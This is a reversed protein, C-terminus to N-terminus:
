RGANVMPLASKTLERYVKVIGHTHADLSFDKVRLLGNTTLRDRLPADSLLLVIKQALARPADVPVLLGTEGETIIEAPGGANTSVVPLGCAWAEIVVRGFAEGDSPLALLTASKMISPIDTRWPLFVVNDLGYEVPM